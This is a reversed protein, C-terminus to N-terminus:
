GPRLADAAAIVALDGTVSSVRPVLELTSERACWVIDSELGVEVLLRGNTSERFLDLASPAAAGVLACMAASDSRRGGLGAVIRGAVYVDELALRGNTGSCVLLVDEDEDEDGDGAEARDGLVGLLADLNALCGLLTLDAEAAAAIIAPTGNSTALVLERGSATEVGAPSNGLDFGPPPVCAEEGALVRGPGRMELAQERSATCLVREYGGALAQAITTTARLVDIVVAVGAPRVGAATLAVDIM